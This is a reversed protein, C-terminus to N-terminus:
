RYKRLTEKLVSLTFEMEDVSRRLPEGEADGYVREAEARVQLPARPIRPFPLPQPHLQPSFFPGRQPPPVRM